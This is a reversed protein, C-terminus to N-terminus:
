MILSDHSTFSFLSDDRGELPKCIQTIFSFSILLDLFQIFFYFFFPLFSLLIFFPSRLSCIISGFIVGLNM